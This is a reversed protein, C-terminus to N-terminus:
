LQLSLTWVTHQLNIINGQKFEYNKGRCEKPGTSALTTDGHWQWAEKSNATDEVCEVTNDIAAELTTGNALVDIEESFYKGETCSITFKAGRKVDGTYDTSYVTDLETTLDPCM